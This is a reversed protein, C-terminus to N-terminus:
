RFVTDMVFIRVRREAADEVRDATGAKHEGYAHVDFRAGSGAIDQLIRQVKLVRRRSLERNEAAGQTTSAYGELTVPLTGASIKGRTAAPLSELWRVINREDGERIRDSGPPHFYVM